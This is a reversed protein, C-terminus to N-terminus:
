AHRGNWLGSLIVLNKPIEVIIFPISSCWGLPLTKTGTRERSGRGRCKACQPTLEQLRTQFFSNTKPSSDRFCGVDRNKKKLFFNTKPTGPCSLSETAISLYGGIECKGGLLFLLRILLLLKERGLWGSLFFNFAVWGTWSGESCFINLSFPLSGPYPTNWTCSTGFKVQQVLSESAAEKRAEKKKKKRKGRRM